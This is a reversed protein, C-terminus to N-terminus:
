VNTWRKCKKHPSRTRPAPSPKCLHYCRNALSPEIMLQWADGWQSGVMLSLPCSICVPGLSCDPLLKNWRIPSPRCRQYFIYLSPLPFLVRAPLLDLGWLMKQPYTNRQPYAVYSRCLCVSACVCVCVWALGHATIYYICLLGRLRPVDM